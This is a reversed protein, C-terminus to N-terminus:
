WKMILKVLLTGLLLYVGAKILGKRMYDVDVSGVAAAYGPSPHYKAAVKEAYDKSRAYRDTRFYEDWKYRDAVASWISSYRGIGVDANELCGIQTHPRSIACGLGFPNRAELLGRSWGGTELRVQKCLWVINSASYGRLAGQIWLYLYAKSELPSISNAM